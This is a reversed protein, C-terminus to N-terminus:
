VWVRRTNRADGGLSFRELLSELSEAALYKDNEAWIDLNNAQPLSVFIADFEKGLQFSGIQDELDCLSAGGLTALYLLALPL